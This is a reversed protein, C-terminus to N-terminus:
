LFKSHNAYQDNSVCGTFYQSVIFLSSYLQLKQTKTLSVTIL